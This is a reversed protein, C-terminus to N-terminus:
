ILCDIKGENVLEVKVTKKDESDAVVKVVGAEVSARNIKEIILKNGSVRMQVTDDINWGFINLIYKPIQICGNNLKWRKIKTIM